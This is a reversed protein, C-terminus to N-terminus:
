GAFPLLADHFATIEPDPPEPWYRAFQVPDRRRRGTLQGDHLLRMGPQRLLFITAAKQEDFPLISAIRPEDHNELFRVPQFRGSVAQLHAQLGPDDRRTLIDYLTKDYVYDFGLSQLRAELNWYAEAIFLFGPHIQRVASIAGAWFEDSPPVTLSPFHRWTGQFVDNLLLMAMDCRVGDCQDAISQLVDVMAARTGPIRFDLQATDIWAPFYPDKGHAIWLADAPSTEPNPDCNNVSSSRRSAAAVQFTEPRPEFSHVFQRPRSAVWPHDLGLHNPVFDLILGLGHRRLRSRFHQLAAPGGLSESVVYDAIAYPSSVLDDPQFTGFAELCLTQLWPQARAIDRSKSGTTWVGMLWIHTFGSRRWSLFEQDPVTALTVPRALKDSLARIWCRTNIEFVLPPPM